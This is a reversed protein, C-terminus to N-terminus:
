KKLELAGMMKKYIDTNQYIGGFAEAGPGYAYVPIMVGTHHTTTFASEVKRDKISGGM